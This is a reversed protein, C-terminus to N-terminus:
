QRRTSAMMGAGGAALYTSAARLQTIQTIKGTVPTAATSEVVISHTSQIFQTYVTGAATCWINVLVCCKFYKFVCVCVRPGAMVHRSLVSRVSVCVTQEACLTLVYVCKSVARLNLM